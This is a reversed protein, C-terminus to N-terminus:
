YNPAKGHKRRALIRKAEEVAQEVEPSEGDRPEEFLRRMDNLLKLSIAERASLVEGKIRRIALPKRLTDVFELMGDLMLDRSSTIRVSTTASRELSVVFVSKELLDFVSRELLDTATVAPKVTKSSAFHPVVYRKGQQQTAIM